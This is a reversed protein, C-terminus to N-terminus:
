VSMIGIFDKFFVTWLRGSIKDETEILDKLRGQKYKEQRYVFYDEPEDSYKRIADDVRALSTLGYINYPYEKAYAIMEARLQELKVKGEAVNKNRYIEEEIYKRIQKEVDRCYARAAKKGCKRRNAFWNFAETHLQWLIEDTINGLFRQTVEKFVKSVVAKYQKRQNIYKVIPHKSDFLINGEKEACERCWAVQVYYERESFEKLQKEGFDEEWEPLIELDAICWKSKCRQCFYVTDKVLM